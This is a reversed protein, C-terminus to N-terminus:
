KKVGEFYKNKKKYICLGNEYTLLMMESESKGGELLLVRGPAEVYSCTKSNNANQCSLDFIKFGAMLFATFRM